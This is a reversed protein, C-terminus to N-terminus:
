VVVFDAATLDLGTALTAFQLAAGARNGDLDYMLAGTSPDYIIRDDADHADAGKWFAGDELVGESTIRKFIANDLQILDSAVDFDSIHDVNGAGLKSRFLFFDAGIGGTLIDAGFGGNLTDSGRNGQLVDNLAGGTLTDAGTSGVVNLSGDTEARGDLILRNLGAGNVTLSAGAAVVADSLTVAGAGTMGLKLTEIGTLAISFAGFASLLATDAGAGGNVVVGAAGGGLIFTDGGVGGLAYDAGGASLDIIDAGAGANITDAGVGGDIRDNGAGGDLVDDGGNGSLIDGAADDGGSLNDAGAGGSIIYRGFQESTSRLVTLEDGAGLAAGDITLAGYGSASRHELTYDHGAGLRVTEISALNVSAGVQAGLKLLITGAYGGNLVLTDAGAGGDVGGETSCWGDYFQFTDAGGGGFMAYGNDPHANDLDFTDNGSYLANHLASPSAAQFASVILALSVSLNTLTYHHVGGFSLDFSNVIGSYASGSKVFNVGSLVIAGAKGSLTFNLTWQTSGFPGSLGTSMLASSFSNDLNFGDTYDVFVGM